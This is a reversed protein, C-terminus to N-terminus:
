VSRAVFLLPRARFTCACTVGGGRQTQSVTSAFGPRMAFWLGLFCASGTYVALIRNGSYGGRMPRTSVPLFRSPESSKACAHRSAWSSPTSSVMLMECRMRSASGTQMGSSKSLCNSSAIDIMVGPPSCNQQQNQLACPLLM